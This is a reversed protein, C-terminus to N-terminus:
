RKALVLLAGITIGTSIPTYDPKVIDRIISLKPDHPEDRVIGHMM